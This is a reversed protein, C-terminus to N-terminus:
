RFKIIFFLRGIEEFFEDEYTSSDILENDLGWKVFSYYESGADNLIENFNITKNVTNNNNYEIVTFYLENNKTKSINVSENAARNYIGKVTRLCIFKNGEIKVSDFRNDTKKEYYWCHNSDNSLILNKDKNLNNEAFSCGTFFPFLYAQDIKNLAANHIYDKDSINVKIYPKNYLVFKLSFEKKKITISSSVKTEKGDQIVYVEMPKKIDDGFSKISVLFIILSIKVILKM